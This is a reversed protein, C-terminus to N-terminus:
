DQVETVRVGIEGEVDVLEGRAIIRGGATLDVPGALPRGVPVVAGPRLELVERASLTIRGIECAIQVPLERLLAESIAPAADAGAAAEGTQLDLAEDSTEEITDQTMDQPMAPARLHFSGLVTVGAGDLHGPFVGGGLRLWVPGGTVPKPGFHDLLVIDGPQLGLVERGPLFGYGAEIHLLARVGDGELRQRREWLRALATRSPAPAAGLRLRADFLLRARGTEERVSLVMDLALLTRLAGGGASLAAAAESPQLASPRVPAGGLARALVELLRDDGRLGLRQCLLEDVALVAAPGGPSLLSLEVLRAARLLSPLQDAPLLYPEQTAVSLAGGLASEVAARGPGTSIAASDVLASLHRSLARGLEVQARLLRPLEDLPYPRVRRPRPRESGAATM